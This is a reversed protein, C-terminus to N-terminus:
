ISWSIAACTTLGTTSFLTCTTHEHAQIPYQNLYLSLPQLTSTGKVPQPTFFDHPTVQIAPDLGQAHCLVTPLDQLILRGPADPWKRKFESLDHGISGGMDVLLVDDEIINREEILREQVPFFGVDM